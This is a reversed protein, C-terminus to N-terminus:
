KPETITISDDYTIKQVTHSKQGMAEGDIVSVAIKGDETYLTVHSQAKIGMATGSTDFEYATYSKGEFEKEGLCKLNSVNKMTQDSVVSVQGGIMKRMVDPMKTWKGGQQMWVGKKTMIMRGQPTQMDIQDPPIINGMMEINTGASTVKTEAHYPSGHMANNWATNLDAKCDAWANSAMLLLVAPVILHKLKAEIM